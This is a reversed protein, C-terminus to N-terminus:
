GNSDDIEFFSCRADYGEQLHYMTATINKALNLPDIVDYVKISIVPTNAKWVIKKATLSKVLKRLKPEKSVSPLVEGPNTYVMTIVVSANSSSDFTETPIIVQNDGVSSSIDDQSVKRKRRNETIYDPFRHYGSYDNVLSM